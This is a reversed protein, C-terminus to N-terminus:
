NVSRQYSISWTTIKVTYGAAEICDEQESRRRVCAPPPGDAGLMVTVFRLPLRARASTSLAPAPVRHGYRESVWGEDVRIAVNAASFTKLWAGADGVTVRSWGGGASPAVKAGEGFQFRLDLAHTDDGTLDDVVLWLAPKIFLVRRRHRVPDALRTYGDHEADVLDHEPTSEWRRVRAAPRSRWSFLTGPEAQSLQDVVVTSHAATSRFYDRWGDAVYRGTGPDVVIPVGNINVQLALFDAHGHASSVPCGLPGVDMVLQNAKTSWDDRMVAYGTEELLRSPTRTPPAAKLKDFAECGAGGLLWWTEPQLAGAAWAYDARGFVAAATSFVGRVDDRERHALRSWTGGDDDGVSPMTRDPRCIDLLYDVMAQTRTAVRSPLKIGNRQALIIFNLFFETTYRHYGTAREFHGGDDGIQRDLEGLLIKLGLRRWRAADTLMPFVTGAHFLGLAEGSLHTNPSYYYSLYREVHLAHARIWALMEARLSPTLQPAGKFLHLAWSWSVLRISVELSSAWNIGIGPPNAAMWETVIDAFKEAYRTDGSLRWAQGLECLWQHRNLEWTVKSDGVADYDLANIESWHDLPASKEALPDYHWLIPTGFDLARYGLLDFRGEMRAQAAFLVRDRAQSFRETFVRAADLDTAGAFFCGGTAPELSIARSDPALHAPAPWRRARPQLAVLFRDVARSLAQRGRDAVGGVGAHVLANVNM